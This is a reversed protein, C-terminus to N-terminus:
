SQSSRKSWLLWWIGLLGLAASSTPEPVSESKSSLALTTGSKLKPILALEFESESMPAAVAKTTSESEPTLAAMAFEAFREHAFGTPHIEDWFLYEDPNSCATLTTIELCAQTVNTLGFQGPNTIAENFINYTDLSILNIDTLSQNLESLTQGLFLNHEEALNTLRQSEEPGDNLPRVTRGLDPLNPVLFNRAGLNYLSTISTELNAVPEQPNPNEVSWYDNAGAWVIYLADSDASQNVLALDDAFWEVQRRVGPILNGFESSGTFGTQAGGFAFNVSQETTSGQFFPSVSPQLESTVTIPSPVSSDSFFTSLETSSKIAFGLEEALNDIWNPANSYRGQYYPPSPPLVPINIDLVSEFPQVFSTANYINGPDSLSDGFVYMRNFNIASAGLPLLYSVFSCGVAIAIKKQM